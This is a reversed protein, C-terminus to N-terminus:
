LVGNIYFGAVSASRGADAPNGRVITRNAAILSDIPWGAGAWRSSRRRWASMRSLGALARTVSFKLASFAATLRFVPKRFGRCFGVTPTWLRYRPRADPIAPQTM